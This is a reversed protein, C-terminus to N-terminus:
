KRRRLVLGGLGLLVLTAPEPVVSFNDFTAEGINGGNFTGQGLGVQLTEPLDARTVTAIEYYTAGDTSFLSSFVDGQRVLRAWSSDLNTAPAPSETYSDNNTTMRMSPGRDFNGLIQTAFWNEGSVSAGNRAMLSGTNWDVYPATIHVTATFDGTVNVYLFLGSNDWEWGGNSSKLTLKGATTTVADAVPNQANGQYLGDWVTGGTGDVLYNHATEFDDTVVAAGSLTVTVMLMAVMLM